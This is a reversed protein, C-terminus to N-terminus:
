SKAFSEGDEIPPTCLLEAYYKGKKNVMPSMM